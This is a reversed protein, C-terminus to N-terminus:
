QAAGWGQAASGSWIWGLCGEEVKRGIFGVGLVVIVLSDSRSLRYAIRSEPEFGPEAMPTM